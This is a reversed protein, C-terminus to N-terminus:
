NGCEEGTQEKEQLEIQRAVFAVFEPHSRLLWNIANSATRGERTCYDSLFSRIIHNPRFGLSEGIEVKKILGEM